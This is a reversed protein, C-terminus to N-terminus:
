ESEGVNGEILVVSGDSVTLEVKEGAATLITVTVGTPIPPATIDPVPVVKSIEESYQSENGSTDYATM